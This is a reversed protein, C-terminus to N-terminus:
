PAELRRMVEGAISLCATLGPSEIDYLNVLGPVGHARVDQIVFDADQGAPVLRMFEFSETVGGRVTRSMGLLAGGAEPLWVEEIKREGGGGCWQGALWDFEGAAATGTAVAMGTGLVIGAKLM